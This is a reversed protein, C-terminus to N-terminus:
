QKEKSEPKKSRPEIPIEATKVNSNKSAPTEGNMNPTIKIMNNGASNAAQAAIQAQSKGPSKYTDAFLDGVALRWGGDEFVFSTEDWQNKKANFVEVAGFNDKVREDRIGPLSDTMTTELMGNELQKELSHNFQKAANAALAATAKSLLQQIKGTDKAKVAEFLAKYAETPTKPNITKQVAATQNGTQNNATQASQCSFGVLALVIALAFACLNKNSQLKM